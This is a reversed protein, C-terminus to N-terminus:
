IYMINVVRPNKKLELKIFHSFNIQYKRQSKRKIEEMQMGTEALYAFVVVCIHIIADEPPM